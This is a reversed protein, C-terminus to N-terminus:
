DALLAGLDLDEFGPMYEVEAADFWDYTVNSFLATAVFDRVTYPRFQEDYDMLHDASMAPRFLIHYGYSSEVIESVQNVELAAAAEEFPAVMAGPLFYYGDPRSRSGPDESYQEMLSDFLAPRQAAPCAKLQALVTEADAKKQAVTEADLPQRNDDLTSFLIHKAYLYGHDLIYDLVDAEPCDAGNVGFTKEYLNDYLLSAQYQTRLYEESLFNNALTTLFDPDERFMDFTQEMTELQAESPWADLEDAKSALVALQLCNMTAYTNAYASNSTAGSDSIFGPFDASWDTVGLYDEMQTAVSYLWSFYESWIVDRGNVRMVVTDPSYAEYARTYKALREAAAAEAEPDPTTDAAPPESPTPTETTAPPTPEAPADTTKGCGAAGLLLVLALCLALYNSKM